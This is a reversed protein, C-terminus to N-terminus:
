VKVVILRVNILLLIEMNPVMVFMLVDICLLIVLHGWVNLFVHDQKIIRLHAQHVFDLKFVAKLQKIWSFIILAYMFVINELNILIQHAFLFAHVATLTQM